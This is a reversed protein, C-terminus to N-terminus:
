TKTNIKFLGNDADITSKFNEGSFELNEGYNVVCLLPKNADGSPTNNYIVMYHFTTFIADFQIDDCDIKLVGASPNSLTINAVVVGGASYGTGTVEHSLDSKFQHTELNPSYNEDLLMAKIQDTDIDILKNFLSNYLKTYIFTERVITM